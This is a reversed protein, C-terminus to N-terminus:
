TGPHKAGIFARFPHSIDPSNRDVAVNYEEQFPVAFGIGLRNSAELIQMLLETQVQLYVNFDPTLVYAFIELDM